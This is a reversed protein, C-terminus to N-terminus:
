TERRKPRDKPSLASTYTRATQHASGLNKDTDVSDRSVAHSRKGASLAEALASMVVGGHADERGSVSWLTHNAPFGLYVAGKMTFAERTRFRRRYDASEPLAAVCRQVFADLKKRDIARATVSRLDRRM